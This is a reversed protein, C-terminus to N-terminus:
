VAGGGAAPFFLLFLQTYDPVTDFHLIIIHKKSFDREYNFYIRISKGFDSKQQVAGTIVDVPKIKLSNLLVSLPQGIYLSKKNEIEHILYNATDAYSHFTQAKAKAFGLCIFLLIIIKKM